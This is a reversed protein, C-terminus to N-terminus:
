LRQASITSGSRVQLRTRDARFLDVSYELARGNQDSGIRVVKLVPTDPQLGLAGGEAASVTAMEISEDAACIAIGMESRLTRYISKMETRLVGQLEARLYMQELSLTEGDAHRLRLLSVVQHTDPVGLAARVAPPAPVLGARIVTTGDRFGQEHLIQPIGKVTNLSRLVGHTGCYPRAGLPSLDGTPVNTLYAGGARGKVRRITGERELLELAKRVTTRSTELREALARETPLRTVGRDEFERALRKLAKSADDLATM